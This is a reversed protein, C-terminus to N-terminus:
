FPIEDPLPHIISNATAQSQRTGDDLELNVSLFNKGNKSTKSWAAM